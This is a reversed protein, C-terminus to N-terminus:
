FFPFPEMLSNLLRGRPGHGGATDWRGPGAASGPPPPRADTWRSTLRVTRRSRGTCGPLKSSPGPDLLGRCLWWQGRCQPQRASTQGSPGVAAEWCGWRRARYTTVDTGFTRPIPTYVRSCSCPDTLLTWALPPRPRTLSVPASPPCGVPPPLHQRPVWSAGAAPWRGRRHRPSSATPPSTAAAPAPPCTSMPRRWRPRGGSPAVPPSIPSSGAGAHEAEPGETGRAQAARVAHGSVRGGAGLEPRTLVGSWCPGPDARLSGGRGWRRALEQESEHPRPPQTAGLRGEPLSCGGETAEQEM